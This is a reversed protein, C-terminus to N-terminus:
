IHVCAIAHEHMRAHSHACVHSYDIAWDERWNPLLMVKSVLIEYKETDFATRWQWVCTVGAFADMLTDSDLEQVVTGTDPKFSRV